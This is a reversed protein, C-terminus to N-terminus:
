DRVQPREGCFGWLDPDAPRSGVCFGRVFRCEGACPPVAEAKGSGVRASDLQRRRGRTLVTATHASSGGARRGAPCRAPGATWRLGSGSDPNGNRGRARSRVPTM